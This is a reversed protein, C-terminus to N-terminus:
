AARHLRGPLLARLGEVAPSRWVFAVLFAGLVSAIWWAVAQSVLWMGLRPAPWGVFRPAGPRLVHLLMQGLFGEWQLFLIAGITTHCLWRLRPMHGAFWLLGPLVFLLHVARYYYNQGAFFSGTFLIAGIILFVAAPSGWQEWELALLGRRAVAIAGALAAAAFLVFMGRAAALSVFRPGLQNLGYPLNHASIANSLLYDGAPVGHAMIASLERLYVDIFIGFLIAAILGYALARYWTERVMLLLLAMPYYKNLGAFFCIAYCLWRSAAGTRYLMGALAALVFVLIDFNGQVVGYAVASSCVGAAYIAFETRSRPALVVPLAAFFIFDAAIGLPVTQATTWSGPVLYPFIPSYLGLRGDIDCPNYAYIDIGRHLCEIAALPAHIDLLPFESPLMGTWDFMLRLYLGLEGSAYIGCVIGWLLCPLLFILARGYRM